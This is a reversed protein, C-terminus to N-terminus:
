SKECGYDSNISVTGSYQYKDLCLRQEVLAIQFHLQTSASSRTELFQGNGDLDHQHYLLDIATFLARLLDTQLRLDKYIDDYWSQNGIRSDEAVYGAEVRQDAIGNVIAQLTAALPICEEIIAAVGDSVSQLHLLGNGSGFKLHVSPNRRETTALQQLSRVIDVLDGVQEVLSVVEPEADSIDLKELAGLVARLVKLLTGAGISAFPDAM